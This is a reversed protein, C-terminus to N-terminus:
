RAADAEDADARDTRPKIRGSSRLQFGANGDGGRLGCSRHRCPQCGSRRRRPSLRGAHSTGYLEIPGYEDDSWIPVAATLSIAAVADYALRDEGTVNRWGTRARRGPRHVYAIRYGLRWRASLTSFKDTDWGARVSVIQCGELDHLEESRFPVALVFSSPSLCSPLDWFLATPVPRRCLHAWGIQCPPRFM